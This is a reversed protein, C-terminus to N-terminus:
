AATLEPVPIVGTLASADPLTLAANFAELQRMSDESLYRRAGAEWEDHQEVLVARALRLLPLDGHRPLLPSAAGNTNLRHRSLLM